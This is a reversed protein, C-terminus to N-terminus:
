QTIFKYRVKKIYGNFSLKKTSGFSGIKTSKLKDLSIAIKDAPTQESLDNIRSISNLGKTFDFDRSGFGVRGRSAPRTQM